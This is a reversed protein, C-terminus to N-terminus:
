YGQLGLKPWQQPLQGARAARSSGPRPSGQLARRLAPTTRVPGQGVTEPAPTGGARQGATGPAASGPRGQTSQCASAKGPLLHTATLRQCLQRTMRARPGLSKPLCDGGPCAGSAPWRHQCHAILNVLPRGGHGPLGQVQRDHSDDELHPSAPRSNPAPRQLHVYVGAGGAATAGEDGPAYGMGLPCVQTQDELAACGHPPPVTGAEGGVRQPEPTPWAGPLAPSPAEQWRKHQPTHPPM